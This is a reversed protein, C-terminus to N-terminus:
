QAMSPKRGMVESLVANVETAIITHVSAIGHANRRSIRHFLSPSCGNLPDCLGIEKRRYM